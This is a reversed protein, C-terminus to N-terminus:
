KNTKDYIWDLQIWQGFADGLEEVKEGVGKPLLNGELGLKFLLDNYAPSPKQQTYYRKREHPCCISVPNTNNENTM